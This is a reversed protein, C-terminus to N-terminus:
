EVTQEFMADMPQIHRSFVLQLFDLFPRGDIIMILAQESLAVTGIQDIVIGHLVIKIKSLTRYGNSWHDHGTRLCASYKSHFKVFRACLFLHPYPSIMPKSEIM